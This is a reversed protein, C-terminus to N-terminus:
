PGRATEISELIGDWLRLRACLAEEAAAGAEELRQPDDDCLHDLLRLSLPGHFDEDLHLHCNLYYHFGPAKEPGLPMVTLLQRFMLPLLHERGLVLAAAVEHPKDGRIFGFTTETFYRAPMPVLDSYLAQDLGQEAIRELFRRPREGDAGIENMAQCYFEFQSGYRVAGDRAPAAVCEQELVLQNVFYRLAPDGQPVWPVATPALRGQLYKILSMFDWVAYVHHSMFVQLDPLKRIAQYVPHTNLQQRLPRLHALDPAAM